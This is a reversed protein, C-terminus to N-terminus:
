WLAIGYCASLHASQLASAVGGQAIVSGGRLLLVEDAIARADRPEHTSFVIAWQRASAVQRLLHLAFQRQALDLHAFPEDLLWLCRPADGLQYLSRALQVRLLEGSSLSAADRAVWQTAHCQELAQAIASENADAFPRGLAVFDFVSLAFALPPEVANFARMEALSQPAYSRISVGNLL